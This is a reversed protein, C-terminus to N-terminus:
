QTSIFSFDIYGDNLDAPKGTQGDLFRIAGDQNVVNFVHGVEGSGRNGFVIGMQGPDSVMNSVDDLSLGHTFNNGFEKELVSLSTPSSNLASAPNGKLLADTAISCNVCNETGGIRNVNRISGAVDGVKDVAKLATGFGKETLFGTVAAGLAESVKAVRTADDSRKFDKIAKDVGDVMAGAAAAITGKPNDVFTAISSTLQLNEVTGIQTSAALFAVMKVGDKIAGWAGSAASMVPDNPDEPWMGDPDTFRLPNDFAYAYPSYRRMMDTAPDVMLFRGLEPDYFRAKYDYWGVEKQHEFGNYKYLNETGATYSNFTLGFPYYDDRQIVELTKNAITVKLDDFFGSGYDSSNLYVQLTGAESVTHTAQLKQWTYDAATNSINSLWVVGGSAPRFVIWLDATGDAEKLTQVEVAITAGAGVEYDVQDSDEIFEWSKQGSYVYETSFSGADYKFGSTSGEFDLLDNITNDANAITVRVNGLHDKLDYEYRGAVFSYRGEAQQVFSLNNNNYHIGNVYDATEDIGTTKDYYKRLKVGTADYLYHITGEPTIVQEPLNLHNYVISSIGKNADNIMNGNSDYNYEVQSAGESYTEHFGWAGENDDVMTLQNGVYYYSLDDELDDNYNRRLNKINGNYDYEITNGTDTGFVTFFNNRDIDDSSYVAKKLRNLDDYTYVYSQVDNIGNPALSKWNIRGINGNYQGADAYLLEMGFKDTLDNFSAGNNIHSLWGRINYTYDVDQLENINKGVLEGLDNYELYTSSPVSTFTGHDVSTTQKTLRYMHDYYFDDTVVVPDKGSATHTRESHTINSSLQSYTNSIVEKGGLHNGVIAKIVRYRDDYYTVQNLFDPTGLIRTKGGTVLGKVKSNYGAPATETTFSYSDYYTVTLVSNANINTPYSRNTYYHLSGGTSEYMLKSGSSYFDDVYGQVTAPDGAIEVLGTMVPRNMADYKTFTWESSIVSGSKTTAVFPGTTEFGPNLTLSGTSEIFYNVGPVYSNITVDGSIVEFDAERQNGDQTLILRDRDDYIMYVWDAGPSKKAIMRGRDDYRYMFFWLDRFSSVNFTQAEDGRAVDMAEPSIVMRLQDKDDYLYYTKAPRKSPMIVKKCVVRGRKDIFEHSENGNEDKRVTKYLKGADYVSQVINGQSNILYSDVENEANVEYSQTSPKNGRTVAWANGPAYSSIIRNLPSSDFVSQSYAFQGDQSGYHQLNFAEANGQVFGEGASLAYPDYEGDNGQLVYPLYDFQQRGYADYTFPKIISEQDPTQGVNIVQKVRGLGDAYSVVETRKVNTGNALDTYSKIGTSKSTYEIFYNQDNREGAVFFEIKPSPHIYGNKKGVVYYVGSQTPSYQSTTEGSIVTEDDVDWVRIWEFSDYYTDADENLVKLNYAGQTPSVVGLNPQIGYYKVEVNLEVTANPVSNPYFVLHLEGPSLFEEFWQYNSEDGGDTVPPGTYGWSGVAETDDENYASYTADDGVYVTRPGDIWIDIDQTFAKAFLCDFFVFLIILLKKM